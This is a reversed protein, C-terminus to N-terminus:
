ARRVTFMFRQGKLQVADAAFAREVDALALAVDSASGYGSFLLVGKNFGYRRRIDAALEPLHPDIADAYAALAQLCAARHKPEAAADVRLMFGEFGPDVPSGDAKRIHYKLHLGNPNETRTPILASM